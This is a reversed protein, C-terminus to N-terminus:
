KNFDYQHFYLIWKRKRSKKKKSNIFYTRIRKKGKKKQYSKKNEDKKELRKKRETKQRLNCEKMKNWKNIKEKRREWCKWILLWYHGKKIAVM